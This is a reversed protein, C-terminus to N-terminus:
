SVTLKRPEWFVADYEVVVDMYNTYTSAAFANWHTIAFYVQETPNAAASGGLTKDVVVDDETQRGFYLAVDCNTSITKIYGPALLGEVVVSRILGNEMLRIPDTISTTDPSLYVGARVASSTGSYTTVSIKSKIVSYQNYLLMLQDFGMPQHGTGTIDPDYLGNASYFYNTVIGAAGTVSIGFDYYSL